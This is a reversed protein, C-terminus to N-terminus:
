GLPAGLTVADLLATATRYCECSAKELRARNTITVVGRHYTILGARQYRVARAGIKVFPPGGGRVRWAELTRPSIGLFDAAEAPLLMSEPDTPVPRGAPGMITTAQM